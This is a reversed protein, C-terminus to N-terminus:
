STAQMEGLVIFRLYANIEEASPAREIEALIHERSERAHPLQGAIQAAKEQEGSKLLIFSLAARTTHHFKENRQGSLVRECLALARSLQMPDNTLALAVALDSMMGEDNPFLKLAESYVAVAADVDGHQLHTHAAIFIANRTQQQNLQDMGLLLDVSVKYLNALAPLLTIDPLTEGREWKSVSQPSVGLLVAAEEQTLGKEKRLAKLNKALYLM